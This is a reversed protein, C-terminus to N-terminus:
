LTKTIFTNTSGNDLLCYTKVGNVLVPVISLYVSSGFASTSGCNVSDEASQVNASQNTVSNKQIMIYFSQIGNEAAKFLVSMNVRVNPRSVGCYILRQSANCASCRQNLRDNDNHSVPANPQVGFCKIRGHCYQSVVNQHAFWQSRLMAVMYRIVVIQPLKPSLNSLNRSISM